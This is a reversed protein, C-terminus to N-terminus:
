NYTKDPFSHCWRCDKGSTRNFTNKANNYANADHCTTCDIIKLVSTGNVLNNQPTSTINHREQVSHCDECWKLNSEPPPHGKTHCDRCDIASKNGHVSANFMTGNVYKEPKNLVNMKSYNFHCGRCDSGKNLTENHFNTPMQMNDEHCSWCESNEYNMGTVSNQPADGWKIRIESNSQNHCYNCDTSNTYPAMLFDTTAYHSVNASLNGGRTGSTNGISNNHCYLCSAVYKSYGEVSINTVIDTGNPAHEYIAPPVPSGPNQTEWSSANRTGNWMHCDQCQWPNKYRDGMRMKGLNQGDSAHCGWCKKNEVAVGYPNASQNNLNKHVGEAISTANVLHEAQSGVDHCSICEAGGGISVNHIFQTSTTSGNKDHCGKCDSDNFGGISIHNLYETENDDAITYDGYTANGTIEPPVPNMTTVMSNYNSNSQYHCSACWDGSLDGGVVNTGKFTNPYGLASTKHKTDGHCYNCKSVESTNTWFDTGRDWLSGNYTNESHLLPANVQPASGSYAGAKPQALLTSMLSSNQHCSTCNGRSTSTADKIYTGNQAFVKIEHADQSHCVTCSVSDNHRKYADHCSTCQTYETINSNTPVSPDPKTTNHMPGHCVVCPVGEYISYKTGNHAALPAEQDYNYSYVSINNGANLNALTSIQTINNNYQPHCDYCSPM